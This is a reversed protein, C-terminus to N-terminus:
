PRTGGGQPRSPPKNGPSSPCPAPPTRDITEVPGAPEPLEVACSSPGPEPPLTTATRAETPPPRWRHPATVAVAPPTRFQPALDGTRALHESLARVAVNTHQSAECLMEFAQESDIRHREMLIGKAQGIVDRSRAMEVLHRSREVHALALTLHDVLVTGQRVSTDDFAWPQASLATVVGIRRGVPFPICLLSRLQWPARASFEPWRTEAHLDHVLVQQGSRAAELAPGEGLDYQLATPGVLGGRLVARGRAPAALPAAADILETASSGPDRPPGDAVGPRLYVETDQAGNILGTGVPGVAALPAGDTVAGILEALAAAFAVPDSTAVSHLNPPVATLPSPAPQQHPSQLVGHTPCM